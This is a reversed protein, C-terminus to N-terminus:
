RNVFVERTISYPIALLSLSSLVLFLQQTLLSSHRLSISLVVFLVGSISWTLLLCLLTVFLSTSIKKYVLVLLSVLSLFLGFSAIAGTVDHLDFLQNLNVYCVRSITMCSPLVCSAATMLSFLILGILCARFSKRFWIKTKIFMRILFFVMLIVMAGTLIDGLIFLTSYPQGQNQLSSVDLKDIASRNLFYGLFWLAYLLGSIFGLSISILGYKKESNRM